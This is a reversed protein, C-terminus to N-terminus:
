PSEPPSLANTPELVPTKHEDLGLFAAVGQLLTFLLHKNGESPSYGEHVIKNRIDIAQLVGDLRITKSIGTVTALVSVQTPLPLTLFQSLSKSIQENGKSGRQMQDNMALELATVGQVFSERIHGSDYLEHARGSLRLALSVQQSPTFSKQLRRWDEETLYESYGRGPLMSSEFTAESETPRFNRWSAGSDSWSIRLVTSCYYGLSQTRSDWPPLERLWYQGYQTRILDIFRSLPEHLFDVLRKGLTIYERSGIENECIASLEEPSVHVYIAEGRLHGADLKAQRQMIAPDIEKRNGDYEIWGNKVYGKREFWIELQNREDRVPVIIADTRGDPLWRHFLPGKPRVLDDIDYNELDIIFRIRLAQSM